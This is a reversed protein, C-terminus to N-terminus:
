VQRMKDYGPQGTEIHAYSALNTIHLCQRLQFFRARTMTNSIIPCYFVSGPKKWYTELNPQKKLGMYIHIAIFAQLEVITLAKWQPGGMTNEMGDIALEVYHNKERVIKRTLLPPWFMKWLQLMTLVMDHITTTSRSGEFELPTPDYTFHTKNWSADRFIHRPDEPAISGTTGDDEESEYEEIISYSKQNM